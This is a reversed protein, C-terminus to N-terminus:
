YVFVVQSFECSMRLSLTTMMSM